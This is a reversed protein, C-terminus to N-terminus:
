ATATVATVTVAAVVTMVTAAATIDDEGLTRVEMTMSGKLPQERQRKPRKSRRSRRRRRRPMDNRAGNTSREGRRRMGGAM